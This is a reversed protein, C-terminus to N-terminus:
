GQAAVQSCHCLNIDWLCPESPLSELGLEGARRSGMKGVWVVRFQCREDGLQVELVEGLRM